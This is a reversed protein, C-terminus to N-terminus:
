ASNGNLALSGFFDISCIKSSAANTFALGSNKIRDRFPVLLHRLTHSLFLSSRLCRVLSDATSKNYSVAPSAILAVAPPPRHPRPPPRFRNAGVALQSPLRRATPRATLNASTLSPVSSSDCRSAPPRPTGMPPSLAEEVVPVASAWPASGPGSNCLPWRAARPAHSTHHSAACRSSFFLSTTFRLRRLSAVIPRSRRRIAEATPQRLPRYSKGCLRVISVLSNPIRSPRPPSRSRVRTAPKRLALAPAHRTNPQKRTAAPLASRNLPRVSPSRPTCAPVSRRACAAELPPPPLAPEPGFAHHPRDLSRLSPKPQAHHTKPTSVGSPAAHQQM